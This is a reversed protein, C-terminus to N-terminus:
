NGSNPSPICYIQNNWRRGKDFEQAVGNPITPDGQTANDLRDQSRYLFRKTSYDEHPFGPVKLPSIAVGIAATRSCCMSAAKSLASIPDKLYGTEKDFLDGQENAMESSVYRNMYVTINSYDPMCCFKDDPNKDDLQASTGSCCQNSDQTYSGNPMCCTFDTESFINKIRTHFNEADSSASYFERNAQGTIQQLFERPESTGSVPERLTEPIFQEYLSSNPPLGQSDTSNIDEIIVLPKVPKVYIQPIGILELSAFFDLFKKSESPSLNAISCDTQQLNEMTCKMPTAEETGDSALKPKWALTKLNKKDIRQAKNPGWKHGGYNDEHFNRVWHGGCCTRSAIAHFDNYSGLVEKVNMLPATHSSITRPSPKRLGKYPNNPNGYDSSTNLTMRDYITQLRSYRKNDQINTSIGAVKSSEYLPNSHDNSHITIKKGQERCCRNKNLKYKKNIQNRNNRPIEKQGCILKEKWFDTEAKNLQNEIHGSMKTAIFHNPACELDTFCAAGANRLCVNRRIGQDLILGTQHGDNFFPIDAFDPHTLLNSSLNQQVAHQVLSSNSFDVDQSHFFNGSSDIIPCSNLYSEKFGFLNSSTVGTDLLRSDEKQSPIVFNQNQFTGNDQHKRGPTCIAQAQLFGFHNQLDQPMTKRGRYDDPRGAIRASLGILDSKKSIDPDANQAVPPRAYRTIKDNFEASHIHTCHANSACSLLKKAGSDYPTQTSPTSLPACFAGRGRYVCRKTNGSVGGILSLLQIKRSGQVERRQLNFIPWSTKIGQINECSYEYGLQTICDRDTECLHAKQCLAGDTKMDQDAIDSSISGIAEQVRIDFSHISSLDAMYANIALYLHPGKTTIKRQNGISFWRVGDFSGIVSGYDFGYWDRQYGNAFLFHQAKLRARRQGVVDAGTRHTWPIMTAPVFCARGFKFDDRRISHVGPKFSATHFDPKIGGGKHSFNSPFLKLLTEYYDQGCEPCQSYSGSTTSIIYTKDPKVRVKKAPLPSTPGSKFSGYIENFGIYQSENSPRLQNKGIYEFKRGEQEGAQALDKEDILLGHNDYYLHPINKSTITVRQEVPIPRHQFYRCEYRVIQSVGNSNNQTIPVLTVDTNPGPRCYGNIAEQALSSSLGVQNYYQSEIFYEIEIKQGPLLQGTFNIKKPDGSNWQWTSNSSPIIIGDVKLIVANKYQGTDAYQPLRLIHNGSPHDSPRKPTSSQGVHFYKICKKLGVAQRKCSVDTQYKIILTDDKASSPLKAKICVKQANVIDDNAVGVFHGDESSLAKNERQYLQRGGYIIEVINSSSQPISPNVNHFNLDDVRASFEHCNVPSELNNPNILAKAGDYRISCIGMEDKDGPTCALYEGLKDLFVQANHAPDTSTGGGNSGGDSTQCIYFYEQHNAYTDNGQLIQQLVGQYAQSQQDVGPKVSGHAVCQNNKCCQGQPCNNQQEDCTTAGSDGSSTIISIKQNEIPLSQVLPGEAEYFRIPHSERSSCQKCADSVKYAQNVSNGLSSELSSKLQPSSCKAQNTAEDLPNVLWFYDQGHKVKLAYGMFINKIQSTNSDGLPFHLVLCFEKNLHSKIHADVTEGKIIFHAQNSEQIRLTQETQTYGQSLYISPSLDRPNKAEEPGKKTPSDSKM